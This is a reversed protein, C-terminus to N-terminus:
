GPRKLYAKVRVMDMVPIHETIVVVLKVGADAAECAADAAFM